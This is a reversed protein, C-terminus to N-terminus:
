LESDKEKNGGQKSQVSGKFSSLLVDQQPMSFVYIGLILHIYIFIHWKRESSCFRKACILGMCGTESNQGWTVVQDM